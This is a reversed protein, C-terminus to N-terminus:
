GPDIGTSCSGIPSVTSVFFTTATSFFFLGRGFLFLLFLLFTPPEVAQNAPFFGLFGLLFLCDLGVLRDLFVLVLLLRRSALHVFVRRSFHDACNLLHAIPVPFALAAHGVKSWKCGIASSISRHAFKQMIM